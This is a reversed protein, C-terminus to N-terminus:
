MITKIKNFNVCFAVKVVQYCKEVSLLMKLMVVVKM